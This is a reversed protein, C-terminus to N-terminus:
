TDAGIAVMNLNCKPKAEEAELKTAVQSAPSASLKILNRSEEPPVM